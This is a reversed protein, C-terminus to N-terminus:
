NAALLKYQDYIESLGAQGSILCQCVKKGEAFLSSSVCLTVSLSRIDWYTLLVHEGYWTSTYTSEHFYSASQCTLLVVKGATEPLLLQSCGEFINWNLHIDKVIKNDHYPEILFKIWFQHGRGKSFLSDFMKDSCTLYPSRTILLTAFSLVLVNTILKHQYLVTNLLIDTILYGWNKVAM